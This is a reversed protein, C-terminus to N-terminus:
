CEEDVEMDLKRFKRGCRPCVVYGDETVNKPKEPDKEKVKSVFGLAAVNFIESLDDLERTLMSEDWTALEGTKNDALQFARQQKLTLKDALVCPAEDEGLMRLAKYRTHGSIINGKADIVLPVRMGFQKISEAVADVAMDNRRPNGPDPILDTLKKYVIEIKEQRAM